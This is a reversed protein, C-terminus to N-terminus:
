QSFSFENLIDWYKGNHKLLFLSQVQFTAKFQRKQFEPWATQFAEESLDRTAITMHPLIKKTLEKESFDLDNSLVYQLQRQLTKVPEHELIKIFLVRPPFCDFGELNLQFANEKVAFKELSQVMDAELNESKRFPMQLTIHAPSKLAHSSSFRSKMEEKLFRVRNCLEEDPILAILYLQNSTAARDRM